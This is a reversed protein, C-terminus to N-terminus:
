VLLNKIEKNLELYVREVAAENDCIDALTRDPSNIAQFEALESGEYDCPSVILPLVRTGEEEAKRLIPPLEDNAIFDSALFATSVLLIAVNAKGIAISIEERWKDGGRIKTDDWCDIENYYKSLVKLHQQLKVLWKEDTHAYSVFISLNGQVPTIENRSGNLRKVPYGKINRGERLRAILKKYPTYIKDYEHKLSYENGDGEIEQFKIWDEDTPYFWKDFLICAAAHWAHFAAGSKHVRGETTQTRYIEELEEVNSLESERKQTDNLHIVRESPLAECAELVGVMNSMFRPIYHKKEFEDSYKLFRELDAPYYLQLYRASLEKWSYYEDANALRYADYLRIVGDPSHLYTLGREIDRGRNILGKIDIAM